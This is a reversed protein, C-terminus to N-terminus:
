EDDTDREKQSKLGNYGRFIGYALVLVGAIRAYSAEMLISLSYPHILIYIGIATYVVAMSMSFYFLTKNM